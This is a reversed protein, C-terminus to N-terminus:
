NRDDASGSNRCHTDPTQVLKVQSQQKLSTCIKAIAGPAHFNSSAETTTLFHSLFLRRVEYLRFGQYVRYSLTRKSFSFETKM